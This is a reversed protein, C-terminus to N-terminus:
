SAVDQRAQFEQWTAEVADDWGEPPRPIWSPMDPSLDGLWVTTNGAHSDGWAVADILRVSRGSTPNRSTWMSVWHVSKPIFRVPKGTVVNVANGTDETVAVEVEVRYGLLEGM